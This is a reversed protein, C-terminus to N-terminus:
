PCGTLFKIIGFRADVFILVNEQPENTPKFNQFLFFKKLINLSCILTYTYMLKSSAAALLFNIQNSEKSFPLKQKCCSERKLPPASNKISRKSRFVM